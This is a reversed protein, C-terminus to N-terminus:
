AVNLCIIIMKLSEHLLGVVCVKLKFFCVFQVMDFTLLTTQCQWHHNKMEKSFRSLNFIAQFLAVEPMNDNSLLPREYM